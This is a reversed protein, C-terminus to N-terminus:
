AKSKKSKKSKKKKKEATTQTPFKEGFQWSDGEVKWWEVEYDTGPPSTLTTGTKRRSRQDEEVQKKAAGAGKGTKVATKFESWVRGTLM